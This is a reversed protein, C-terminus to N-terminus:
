FAGTLTQLNGIAVRYRVLGDDMANRADRAGSQADVVELVSVEGAQYRLLTLDLSQRSLDVSQRLSALQARALAAERYFADLEALLNRQTYTLDNKAQQLKYEAQKVKSRAAGWTWLPITLQGQVVSGLLNDGARNHIAFENASIGFFYDMSIAPLMEARASRIEYGQQQVTAQAVRIDPSNKGALTQAESYVPLSALTELDDVV